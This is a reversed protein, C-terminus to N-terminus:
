RAQENRKWIKLEGLRMRCIVEDELSVSFGKSKLKEQFANWGTYGVVDIILDVDDSGVGM